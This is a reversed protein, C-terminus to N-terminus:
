NLYQKIACGPLRAGNPMTPTSCLPPLRAASYPQWSGPWTTHTRTEQTPATVAVIPRCNTRPTEPWSYGGPASTTLSSRPPEWRGDDLLEVPLDPLGVAQRVAARQQDPDRDVDDRLMLVWRGDSYTTLFAPLDPQEIEFQGVGREVYHDIPARFLISRQVSLLGQGSRAIGLAERM